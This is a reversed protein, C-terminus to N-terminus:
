LTVPGLPEFLISTEGIYAVKFTYGKIVVTEGLAFQTWTEPVPQGDPRFLTTAAAEGQKRTLPLGAKVRQEALGLISAFNAGGPGQKSQQRAQEELSTEFLPEFRNTDPNM